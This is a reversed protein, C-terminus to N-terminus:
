EALETVLIHLETVVEEGQHVQLRTSDGDVESTAWDGAPFNEVIWEGRALEADLLSRHSSIGTVPENVEILTFIRM